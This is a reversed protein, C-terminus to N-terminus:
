IFIFETVLSTEQYLLNRVYIFFVYSVFRENGIAIFM